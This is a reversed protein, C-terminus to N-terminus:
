RLLGGAFAHGLRTRLLRIRGTRYLGAHSVMGVWHGLVGEISWPGEYIGVERLEWALSLFVYSFGFMLTFSVGPFWMVM